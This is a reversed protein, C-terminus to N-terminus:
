EKPRFETKELLSGSPWTLGTRVAFKQLRDPDYGNRVAWNRWRAVTYSWWIWALLSGAILAIQWPVIKMGVFAAGIMLVVAPVNVVLQGVIIAKWITIANPPL